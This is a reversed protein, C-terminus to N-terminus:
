RYGLADRLSSLRTQTLALSEEPVAVKPGRYVNSLRRVTKEQADQSYEEGVATLTSKSIKHGLLNTLMSLTSVPDRCADEYRLLQSPKRRLASRYFKEVMAINQQLYQADSATPTLLRRLRPKRFTRSIVVDVPDRILLVPQACAGMLDHPGWSHASNILVDDDGPDAAPDENHIQHLADLFNIRAYEPATSIQETLSPPLYVEGCAHIGPLASLMAEIWHSGSSGCNILFLTLPQSDARRRATGVIRQMIQAMEAGRAKARQALRDALKRAQLPRDEPWAAFPKEVYRIFEQSWDM